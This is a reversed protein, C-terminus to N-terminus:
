NKVKWSNENAEKVLKQVDQYKYLESPSKPECNVCYKTRRQVKKGGIKGIDEKCIQCYVKIREM